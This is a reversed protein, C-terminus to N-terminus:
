AQASLSRAKRDRLAMVAAMVIGIGILAWTSPEPVAPASQTTQVPAGFGGSPAAAGSGFSIGQGRPVDFHVPSNGIAGSQGGRAGIGQPTQPFVLNTLPFSGVSGGARQGTPLYALQPMVVEAPAAADKPQALLASPTEEQEPPIWSTKDGLGAGGFVLVASLILDMRRQAIQQILSAAISM